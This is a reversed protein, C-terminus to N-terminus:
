QTDITQLNGLLLIDQSKCFQRFDTESKHGPFPVYHHSERANRWFLIWAIGSARINPYLIETFWKENPIKELGTETFAYLKNKRKAISRLIKLNEKVNKAYTESDNHDYIDAGLIDVYADGPYYKLFTSESDVINPSYAYLIQHVRHKDRLLHVTQKWLAVYDSPSCNGDGWWFWNGNMEHFPRFIVPIEKGEYKLSKVFNALREVWHEYKKIYAGGPIIKDVASITDWSSGDSFPNNLHWSLTIIGGKKYAEQINRRMPAFGVTDLNHTKDLEIHGLDFGYVGPFDGTAKQVDSEFAHVAADYKWGVGYGPSDQHGLIIGKKSTLFLKKHLRKTPPSLKKDVMPTKEYGANYLPKCSVASVLLVLLYLNKEIGINSRM